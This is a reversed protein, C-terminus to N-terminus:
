KLIFPKGLSYNRCSWMVLSHSQDVSIGSLQVGWGKGLACPVESTLVDRGRRINVQGMCGRGESDVLVLGLTKLSVRVGAGDESM